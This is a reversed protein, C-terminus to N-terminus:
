FGIKHAYIENLTESLGVREPYAKILRAIIQKAPLFRKQRYLATLRDRVFESGPRGFHEELYNSFQPVLLVVMVEDSLADAFDVTLEANNQEQLWAQFIINEGGFLLLQAIRAPNGLKKAGELFQAYVAPWDSGAVNKVQEFTERRGHRMFYAQLLRAQTATDHMQEAVYLRIRDLEMRRAVDLPLRELVRDVILAVSPWCETYYLQMIAQHAVPTLMPPRLGEVLTEEFIRLAQKHKNAKALAVLYTETLHQSPAPKAEVFYAQLASLRSPSAKCLDAVFLSFDRRLLPGIMEKGILQLLFAWTEERLEPSIGKELLIEFFPAACDRLLEDLRSASATPQLLAIPAVQEFIAQSIHFRVPMNGEQKAIAARAHLDAVVKTVRKIDSERLQTRNKPLVTALLPRYPNGKTDLADAFRAKLALAFNPDRRAYNRVFEALQDQPVSELIKAIRFRALEPQSEAKERAKRAKEEASQLLFRRLQLLTAAIHACMSKRQDTWCDCAFDNIRSPSIIAETEYVFEGDQVTAMWYHREPERLGGVRGETLLQQATGRTAASIHYEFDSLALKKM